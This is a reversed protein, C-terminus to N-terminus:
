IEQVFYKKNQFLDKKSELYDKAKNVNDFIGVGVRYWKGKGPISVENIIVDYGKIIFSDAFEQANAKSQDAYLQITYKGAYKADGTDQVRSEKAIVEKVQKPEEKTKEVEIKENALKAMEEKLRAEMGNESKDTVAGDSSGDDKISEEFNSEGQPEVVKDVYEEEVSKLNINQVDEDTYQDHKISLQKGTRIGLTFSIVAILIIFIFILIVEKKEFVFLKNNDEM